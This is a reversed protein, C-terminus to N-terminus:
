AYTELGGTERFAVPLSSLAKQERIVAHRLKNQSEAYANWTVVTFGYNFWATPSPHNAWPTFPYMTLPVQFVCPEDPKIYRMTRLVDPDIRIVTSVDAGDDDVVIEDM